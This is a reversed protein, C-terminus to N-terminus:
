LTDALLGDADVVLRSAFCDAPLARYEPWATAIVVADAGDIASEVSAERRVDDALPPGLPEAAPDHARVVAGRQVLAACLDVSASRRLTSTGPTYTLGLVAIHRQSLDDLESELTRLPWSRHAANSAIVADLLPTPRATSRGVERLYGVDRALTGGAFAAGPAVYAGPGVRRDTRLAREVDRAEAGVEECLTAVENAFTVSTALYANLAHKTMEASEVSMWVLQDTITGLLAVLTARDEDHRVGVVIRSPHLFSDMARGLRLNEPSYAFGLRPGAPSARREIEATSGVPLQSSVLVVAGSPASPLVELVRDVVWAADGRDQDDVPTDFTVWLVAAEALAKAPDTTFSLLGQEAGAALAEALGPEALAPEAAGLRAVLAADPDLGTVRHGLAALGAATVSGLHWCGLVCVNM